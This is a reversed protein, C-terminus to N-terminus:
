GDQRAEEGEGLERLAQTLQERSPAKSHWEVQYEMYSVGRGKVTHAIIVTPGEQAVQVEDLVALLQAMDHGDTELVRWGFDWWKAALPELPMTEETPGVLQLTNRDVIAVLNDLKLKAASMAAEWVQGENLEGDGLLVFVKWAAGKLKGGLAMGVAASLGQGLSGTSMDVGPTKRMDPHGQLLGNIRDFTEFESKPFFGLEGLAAYLAPCAHGKSLVFRDRGDWEPNDPRINLVAFYLATIIDVSSLAGGPHGAQSQGVMKVVDRRLQRAIRELERVDRMAV